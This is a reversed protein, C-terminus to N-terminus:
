SQVAGVCKELRRIRHAAFLHSRAIQPGPRRERKLHKSYEVAGLRVGTIARLRVEWRTLRHEVGCRVLQTGATVPAGLLLLVAVMSMPVAMTSTPAGMLLFPITALEWWAGPGIVHIL